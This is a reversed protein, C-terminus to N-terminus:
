RGSPIGVLRAIGIVLRVRVACADLCHLPRMHEAKRRHSRINRRRHRRILDRGVQGVEDIELLKLIVECVIRTTQKCLILKHHHIHRIGALKILHILAVAVHLHRIEHRDIRQHVGVM